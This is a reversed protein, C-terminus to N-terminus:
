SAAAMVNFWQLIGPMILFVFFANRLKMVGSINLM